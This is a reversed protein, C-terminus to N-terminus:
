NTGHNWVSMRGSANGSVIMGVAPNPHFVNVAPIATLREPDSLHAINRGNKAGFVDVSRSKDGCTFIAEGDFDVNSESDYWLTEM